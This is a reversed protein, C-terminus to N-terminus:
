KVAGLWFGLGALALGAIVSAVAYTIAVLHQDARILQLTELGYSSFTTFGGLLGIMLFYRWELTLWQRHEIWGAFLGILLCGILNVTFTGFPFGNSAHRTFAVGTLYRLISGLAGGTGIMFLTKLM